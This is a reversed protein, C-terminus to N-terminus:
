PICARFDGAPSYGEYERENEDEIRQHFKNVADENHSIIQQNLPKKLGLRIYVYAAGKLRRELESQNYGRAYKYLFMLTIPKLEFKARKPDSYGSIWDTDIDPNAIVRTIHDHIHCLDETQEGLNDIVASKTQTAVLIDVPTDAALSM